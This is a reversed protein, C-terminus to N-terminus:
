YINLLFLNLLKKYIELMKLLLLELFRFIIGLDLAKKALNKGSSFCHLLAPFNKNKQESELIEAMDLDCDRSHIIVPLNNKQSAKIHQLFSTKQKEIFSKDHFYDLGTEGIGIIKNNECLKVIEDASYIREKDVNCPHIGLSAYIFDYNNIFKELKYFESIKTCITQLLKVNNNKANEIIKGIDLDKEEILDLHCHSDIIYNYKM